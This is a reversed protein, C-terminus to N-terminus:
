IRTISEHVIRQIKKGVNNSLMFNNIAAIFDVGAEGLNALEDLFDTIDLETLMRKALKELDTTVVDKSTDLYYKKISNDRKLLGVFPRYDQQDSHRRIMGGCNIVNKIVFGNHNDGFCAADYGKLKKKTNGFRRSSPADIYGTTKTWIYEHVVALQSVLSHDNSRERPKVPYGCPFGHAVLEGTPMPVNPKINTIVGSSVLTWYASKAIDKYSHLPLDHNGAIAFCRPMYECTFNILEAPSNWKHFIDGAIIIPAKAEYSIWQLESLVRRQAAYWNPEESRFVPPTHSLHLDSCLVAIIDKDTIKSPLNSVERETSSAAEGRPKWVPAKSPM